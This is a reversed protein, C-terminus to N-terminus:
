WMNQDQSHIAKLVNEWHDGNRAVESAARQVSPPMSDASLVACWPDVYQRAAVEHRFLGDMCDGLVGLYVM